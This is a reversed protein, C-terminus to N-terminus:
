ASAHDAGGAHATSHFVAVDAAGGPRNPNGPNGPRNPNGPNPNGPNDPRNPNGPNPNGPNDPRNPNGPNPNGPNDPRNPNGPNPNGPNDPRDPNGPNPNGPNDPRNGPNAPTEPRVPVVPNGPRDQPGPQTREVGFRLRTARVSAGDDSQVGEVDIAAGNRLDALSGGSFTAEAFSVLVGRIRLLHREIDLDGVPGSLFVPQPEPEVSPERGREVQITEAVLVGGVLRGSVRVRTGARVEAGGEVTARSADVRVGDVTFTSGEPEGSVVGDVDAELEADPTPMAPPPPPPAAEQLMVWTGDARPVTGLRVNALGGESVGAARADEVGIALYDIWAAGIAFRRGAADLDHVIGQLRYETAGQLLDIRTAAYHGDAGPVLFGHIELVSGPPLAALAALGGALEEGFFTDAAVDVVQGLVAIRSTAADVAQLPGVVEPGFRILSAEGERTYPSDVPAPGLTSGEVEVVMGLRLEASTRQNGDDDRISANADGYRIGNVIISGFGTISGVAYSGTGGSDVGAVQTGSGCAVLLMQAGLAVALLM